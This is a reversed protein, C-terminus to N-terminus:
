GPVVLFGARPFHVVVEGVREDSRRIAIHQASLSVIEGRVPIRGYDDPMVSVIDGPKRGNPDAGDGFVPSEPQAKAVVELADASSMETRTGHGIARIREEWAATRPFPRMMEDITAISQRAYWVNMYASVDALSFEGFLWPRNDGLQAEIWDVNARFQDRMQPLAATMAAIDFKGGRLKERDAIFDQPVKDGIFGFVLNVTSQFFPRDTWMGLAWPMGANGAPFLTPTPYRRELERIIIQTDCYIDAGIQMTPTRRYGGTMPMLDPRPMIRSIRVSNWALKKFGFIIRIKESFPSQDFHHLIPTPQPM